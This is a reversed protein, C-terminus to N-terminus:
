AEVEPRSFAAVFSSAVTGIVVVTLVPTFDAGLVRVVNLAFAVGFAGPAILLQTTPVRDAPFVRGVIWSGTLKGCARLVTYGIAIAFVPLSFKAHAGAMVLVLALLSHAVYTVDRQIHERVASNALRWCGGATLGFLLASMSLYDAAGGLLLASGVTSVRHEDVASTRSLLLWGSGAILAAILGAELTTLLAAGGSTERAFALLLGGAIVPLICDEADFSTAAAIGLTIAAVRWGPFPEGTAANPPVLLFAGAVVTGAIAAQLASFTATRRAEDGTAQIRMAGLIGLVALAVPAAPDLFSLVPQTLIALGNPGAAAGCLLLLVPALTATMGTGNRPM